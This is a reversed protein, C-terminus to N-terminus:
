GENKGKIEELQRILEEKQEQSVATSFTREFAKKKFAKQLCSEYHSCIYAGRGDARGTVDATLKGDSLTIRILSNKEKSEMCGIGRRMPVKREKM